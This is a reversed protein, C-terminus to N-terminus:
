TLDELLKKAKTATPTDPYTQILEQLYATISKKNAPQAQAMMANLRDFHPRAALEKKVTPNNALPRRAADAAKGLDEGKFAAALKVYLDYAKVPDTEVAADAEEKWAQGEAQVADYLKQASEAVDKKHNSRWQRLAPVAKEYQGWELLEIIPNLQEHYGKEKYKWTVDKLAKDIAQPTMDYGSIKGDPGIVRFAYINNMSIKVDLRREMVSLPDIFVPMVLGTKRVYSTVSQASDGAGVALFVVPKDKYAAVVENRQPILGACRPCNSEYLFVVVVKGRFNELQYTGGDSFKGPPFDEAEERVNGRGMAQPPAAILLAAMICIAAALWRKGLVSAM